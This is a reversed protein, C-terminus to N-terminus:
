FFLNNEEKCHKWSARNDELKMAYKNQVYDANEYSYEGGHIMKSKAVFLETNSLM